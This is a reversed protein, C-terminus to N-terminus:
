QPTDVKVIACANFAGNKLSYKINNVDQVFEIVLLAFLPHTSAAPLQALLDIAPASQNDLALYASDTSVVTFTQAEFDVAAAGLTLKFHTSGSPAAIMEAPIFSPFHIAVNGTTRDVTVTFPAFITTSLKGQVNFEFSELLSAEGDIVNRKGRTNVMDQQIVAFMQATLRSVMRSDSANQIVPRFATKLLKSGKGARAFEANNERTREFSPDNAIKDATVGGKERAMYGDRSKFFTINGITGELSIIGKQRAM